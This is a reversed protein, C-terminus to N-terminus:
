LPQTKFADLAQRAAPAQKATDGLCPLRLLTAHSSWQNVNWAGLVIPVPSALWCLDAPIEAVNKKAAM